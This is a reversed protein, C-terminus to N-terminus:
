DEAQGETFEVQVVARRVRDLAIELDGEAGALVASAAPEDDAPGAASVIRGTVVTGDVMTTRVLRGINRRWHRLLTLPRDLGPSGVDLLYPQEGMVGSSDLAASIANAAQAAEDLSIGGDRDLLVRLLTRSGARRLQVDELDLGAAAASAAIADRVAAAAGHGSRHPPTRQGAM